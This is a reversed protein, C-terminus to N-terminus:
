DSRFWSAAKEKGCMRAEAETVKRSTKTIPPPPEERVVTNWYKLTEYDKTRPLSAPLTFRPILHLNKILFHVKGAGRIVINSAALIDEKILPNKLCNSLSAVYTM